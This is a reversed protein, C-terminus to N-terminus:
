SLYLKIMQCTLCIGFSLIQVILNRQLIFVFSQFFYLEIIFIILMSKIRNNGDSDNM